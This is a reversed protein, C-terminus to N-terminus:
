KHRSAEEQQTSQALTRWRFKHSYTNTKNELADAILGGLVPGFKFAHGSGGAAVTLGAVEPHRDIWFHGDLTDSYCCRRTYVIPADVLAPFTDALFARLNAEDTTTVLREDNTPHLTQGIGHNAIKVVQAQPHWPFGYWGSHSIDATFVTFNPTQFFTPDTPQLHFVPHGTTKMVPQLEPVLLPTWTGACVVIEAAALDHGELTRVGTVRGREKVIESVTHYPLLTIGKSVATQALMEVVRGSEAWGGKAHYYGDVYRGARWAPFRRSIEDADLREPNFGNKLALFYSDHEYGGPAMPEHTFMTVGWEHYLTQGWEDNWRLWGNIAAAALLMYEEDAGYELRVVKSIDTSAALPHPIPGPDVVTIHQYGRAHLEHAAALGYIGAGIILVDPTSTSQTM